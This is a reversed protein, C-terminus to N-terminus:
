RLIAEVQYVIEQATNAHLGEALKVDQTGYRFFVRTNLQDAFLGRSQMRYGSVNSAGLLSWYVEGIHQRDFYQGNVEIGGADVIFQGDKRAKNMRNRKWQFLGLTV